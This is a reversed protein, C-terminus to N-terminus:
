QNATIISSVKAALDDAEAKTAAEAYVRVVDETGSPRAFSRGNRVKKVAEDIGKQAAAPTVLRREADETTFLNRNHVKVKVLRNPLDNYTQLWELPGWSKRALIVEVLLMDTLADGVSQNILDVLARLTELAALQAPSKPELKALKKLARDSFIVTGHGNAEFYVGVDLREAAHHLHKVGTATCKVELKLDQEIYKTSSGNAYATQVVGIKVEEALGCQRCLDGIFSAALTAIRDGDLLHFTNSEDKFYYVVRDADGDLSCCRDGPGAKSSPPAKQSTKVYDAGCDVNLSEPQHVNDNVVKIQLVENSPLYKILETLKPGGVGNACDVTLAGTSTKNGMARKFANSFKTYYGEETAEGYEQSTGQTNICRVMYHLQPTTLINYDIFEAGAATLGDVLCSALRSGSARTDRAFVVQAPVALDIHYLRAIENYVSVVEDDNNTNAIRTSLEEWEAELMSGLPDVLKVGNDEPPNHSATIMVGITKGQLQRSRLAAILGCRFVVSDLLDAKMRFGATGYQYKHNPAPPHKASAELIQQDTSAM